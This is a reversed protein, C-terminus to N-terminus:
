RVARVAPGGEELGGHRRAGPRPVLRRARAARLRPGRRRRRGGAARHPACAGAHGARRHVPPEGRGDPGALREGAGPTDAPGGHQDMPHGAGRRRGGTPGPRVPGPLSRRRRVRRRDRAADGRPGPPDAGALVRRGRTAGRRQRPAGAGRGARRAGVRDPVPAARRDGTRRRRGAGQGRVGPRPRGRPAGQPATGAPVVGGPRGRDAVASGRGLRCAPTDATDAAAGQGRGRVLRPGGAEPTVRRLLGGPRRLAGGPAAM